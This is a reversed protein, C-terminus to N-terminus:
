EVGNLLKEWATPRPGEHPLPECKMTKAMEQVEAVTLLKQKSRAEIDTLLEEMDRARHDYFEAQDYNGAIVSLACFRYLTKIQPEISAKIKEFPVIDAPKM